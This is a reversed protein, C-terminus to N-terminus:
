LAASPLELKWGSVMMKTADVTCTTCALDPLLKGKEGPSAALVAGPRTLVRQYLTRKGEMLLPVRASQAAVDVTLGLGVLSLSLWVMVLM